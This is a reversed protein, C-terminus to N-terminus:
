DCVMYVGPRGKGVFDLIDEAPYPGQSRRHFLEEIEELTYEGM